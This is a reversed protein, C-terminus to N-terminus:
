DNRLKGWYFIAVTGPGTHSGITTGINNIEVEGRLKPFRDEILDAVAKADQYCASHCLYCKGDYCLGKDAREEMKDVIAKIVNRKGRIKARPTLKGDYNMDMLPCINLLTGVLGATKTIRGGKIYFTLDTSFFWLQLRLKNENAWAYLEDIGM